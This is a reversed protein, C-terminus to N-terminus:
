QIQGLREETRLLLRANAIFFCMWFDETTKMLTPLSLSLIRGLNKKGFFDLKQSLTQKQFNLHSLKASKKSQIVTVNM